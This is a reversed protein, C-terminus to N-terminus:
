PMSLAMMSSSALSGGIASPLARSYQLIIWSAPMTGCLPVRSGYLRDGRRDLQLHAFRHHRQKGVVAELDGAGARVLLAAERLKVADFERGLGPLLFQRVRARKTKVLLDLVQDLVAQDFAAAQFVGHDDAVVGHQRGLRQTIRLFKDPVLHEIDDAVKRQQAPRQVAMEDRHFRAVRGIAFQHPEDVRLHALGDRAWVKAGGGARRWCRRVRYALHQECIM